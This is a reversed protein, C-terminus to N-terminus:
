LAKIISKQLKKSAKGVIKKPVMLTKRNQTAEKKTKETEAMVCKVYKDETDYIVTADEKSIYIKKLAKEIDNLNDGLSSLKIYASLEKKGPAKIKSGYLCELKSIIATNKEAKARAFLQRLTFSYYSKIIEAKEALSSEMLNFVYSLTDLKESNITENKLSHIYYGTFVNGQAIANKYAFFSILAEDYYNIKKTTVNLAEIECKAKKLTDIKFVKGWLALSSKDGDATFVDEFSLAKDSLKDSTCKAGEYDIAWGNKLIDLGNKAAFDVMPNFYNFTVYSDPELFAVYEGNALTIAYLKSAFAGRKETRVQKAGYKSTIESYDNEGDNIVIIEYDTLTSAYISSICNEMQKKDQENAYIIATLKM